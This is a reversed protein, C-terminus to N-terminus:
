VVSKRDILETKLVYCARPLLTLWVMTDFASEHRSAILAAGDRPLHERGSVQLRIGCIVRVAALEMRAWFIALALAHRPAFLRIALGPIMLLATSGFYFINFTISRLVIM